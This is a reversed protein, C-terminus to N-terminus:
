EAAPGAGLIFTDPPAAAGPEYLEPAALRLFRGIEAAVEAAPRAMITERALSKVLVERGVAEAVFPPLADAAAEPPGAALAATMPGMMSILSAALEPSEAAFALNVAVAAQPQWDPGGFRRAYEAELGGIVAISPDKAAAATAMPEPVLGAERRGSAMELILQQPALSDIVLGEGGLAALLAFVPSNPPSAGM